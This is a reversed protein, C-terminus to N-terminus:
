ISAFRSPKDQEVRMKSLKWYSEVISGRWTAQHIWPLPKTSPLLHKRLHIPVPNLNVKRSSHNSKNRLQSIRMIQKLMKKKNSKKKEEKKPAPEKEPKTETIATRLPKEKEEKKKPEELKERLVPPSAPEAYDTVELGFPDNKYLRERRKMEDRLSAM